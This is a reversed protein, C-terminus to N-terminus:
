QLYFQLSAKLRRLFDFYDTAVRSSLFYGGGYPTDNGIHGFGDSKQNLDMYIYRRRGDRMSTGICWNDSAWVPPENVKIGDSFYDESEQRADGDLPPWWSSGPKAQEAPALVRPEWLALPFIKTILLPQVGNQAKELGGSFYPMPSSIGSFVKFAAKVERPLAVGWHAKRGSCNRGGHRGGRVM